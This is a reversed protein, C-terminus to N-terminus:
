NRRASNELSNPSLSTPEISGSSIKAKRDLFDGLAGLPGGLSDSIRKQFGNEIEDPVVQIGADLVWAVGL